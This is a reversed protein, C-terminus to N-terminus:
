LWSSFLLGTVSSTVSGLANVIYRAEVWLVGAWFLVIFGICTKVNMQTCACVGFVITVQKFGSELHVM